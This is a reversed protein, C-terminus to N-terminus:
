NLNDAFGIAIRNQRGVKGRSIDVPTAFRQFGTLEARYMTTIRSNGGSEAATAPRTHVAAIRGSGIFILRGRGAKELYVFLDGAQVKASHLNNFEYYRGFEDKYEEQAAVKFMWSAMDSRM